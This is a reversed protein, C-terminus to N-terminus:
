TQRNVARDSDEAEVASRRLSPRFAATAMIRTCTPCRSNLGVHDVHQVLAAVFLVFGDLRNPRAPGELAGAPAESERLEM